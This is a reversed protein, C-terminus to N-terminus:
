GRMRVRVRYTLKAEGGAPVSVPFEATFAGIKRSPVSSEVITWDGPFQERVLVTVPEKRSAIVVEYASESEKPSSQQFSVQRRRATLDFAESSEIEVDTREPTHPIRDEGTFVTGGEAYVRVVGAPLARALPKTEVRYQVAVPVRQPEEMAGYWYSTRVVYRKDVAVDAGSALPFTTRGAPLRPPSEVDYVRSESVEVGKASVDQGVAIAERAMMPAMPVPPGSAIRLTGALLRLRSPTFDSGSRNDVVFFGELRAHKEDPALSLSYSADWTVDGVLYRSTVTRSGARDSELKLTVGSPRAAAASDGSVSIRADPEGYVIEGGERFVVHAPTPGHVALVEGEVASGGGPRQIRVRKGVLGALWDADAAGAGPLPAVLGLFRVGARPGDLISWTETRASAPAGDWLIEARGAPFSLPRVETVLALNQNTVVLDQRGAATVPRPADQAGAFGELVLLLLLFIRRSRM